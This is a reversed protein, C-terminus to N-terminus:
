HTLPSLKESFFPQNKRFMAHLTVLLKRMLATLAQMPTKGRAILHDAFAKLTPNHRRAALAPMYVASRLYRNGAKSLRPKKHVTTGSTHHQPDLGAFAVWQRADMDPPLWALEGLIRIASTNAIGPVTVALDFRNQLAPDTRITTLAEATLRRISDRLRAISQEIDKRIVEPTEQSLSAAHLHNKEAAAAITLADIRRAIARLRMASSSPARWPQFPMRAAFQELVDADIRDSKNRELLAEAFRRVARPNAVMVEIGDGQSLAVSLDLGYTGTSELCVRTTRGSASLLRCIAQHGSPTNPFVKRVLKGDRCVTVPLLLSGVDIGASDVGM